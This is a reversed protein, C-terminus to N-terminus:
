HVYDDGCGNDAIVFADGEVRPAYEGTPDPGFLVGFKLEGCGVHRLVDRYEDPLQAGAARALAAVETTSAM